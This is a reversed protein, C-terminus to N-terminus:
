FPISDDEIEPEEAKAKAKAPKKKPTDPVEEVTTGEAEYSNLDIVEVEELRTGVISKRSTDYVNLVVAGYSENGILGQESPDFTTGDANKVKPAGGNYPEEVFKRIFKVATHGEHETSPRGKKMSGSSKLLEFNADDMHVEVTCAGDHESYAGEFGEMDRNEPFVKAWHLYGKVKIKRTGM